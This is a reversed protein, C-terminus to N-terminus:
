GNALLRKYAESPDLTLAVDSRLAPLDDAGGVAIKDGWKRPNWKALLKLRTDIRLKAHQVAGGDTAGMATLPPPADAIGLTDALIIEEGAERARAIAESLDPRAKCWDYWTTLGLGVDRCVPALPEGTAVRAVIEDALAQTFATPRGNRKPVVVEANIVKTKKTAM